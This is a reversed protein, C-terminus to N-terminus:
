SAGCGVSCKSSSDTLKRPAADIRCHRLKKNLNTIIKPRSAYFRASKSARALGAYNTRSGLVVDMRFFRAKSFLQYLVTKSFNTMRFNYRAMTPCKERTLSMSTGLVVPGPHGGSKRCCRTPRRTKIFHTKLEPSFAIVACENCAPERYTDLPSRTPGGACANRGGGDRSGARGNTAV